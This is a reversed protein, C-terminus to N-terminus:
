PEAWAPASAAVAALATHARARAIDRAVNANFTDIVNQPQNGAAVAEDVAEDVAALIKEAHQYHWRGASM